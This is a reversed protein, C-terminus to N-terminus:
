FILEDSNQSNLFLCVAQSAPEHARHVALPTRMAQLGHGLTFAQRAQDIPRM